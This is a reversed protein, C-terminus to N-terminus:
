RSMSLRLSGMARAIAGPTSRRLRACRYVPAKQIPAPIPTATPAPTTTDTGTATTGDAAEVSNTKARSCGVLVMLSACIATRIFNKM